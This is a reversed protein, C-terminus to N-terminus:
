FLVQAVYFRYPLIKYQVTKSIISPACIIKFDWFSAVAYSWLDAIQNVLECSNSFSFNTRNRQTDHLPFYNRAFLYHPLHLLHFLVVCIFSFLCFSNFFPCSFFFFFFCSLPISCGVANRTFLATTKHLLRRDGMWSTPHEIRSDRMKKKKKEQGKKM